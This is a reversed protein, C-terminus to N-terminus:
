GEHLDKLFEDLTNFTESDQMDKYIAEKWSCTTLIPLFLDLIFIPADHIGLQNYFKYMVYAISNNFNM